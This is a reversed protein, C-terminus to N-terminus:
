RALKDTWTYLISIAVLGIDIAAQMKHPSLDGKEHTLIRIDARNNPSIMAFLALAAIAAIVIRTRRTEM